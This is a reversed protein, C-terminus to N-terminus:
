HLNCRHRDCNILSLYTKAHDGHQWPQAMIRPLNIYMKYKQLIATCSIRKLYIFTLFQCIKMFIGQLTSPYLLRLNSTCYDAFNYNILFNITSLYIAKFTRNIFKNIANFFLNLIIILSNQFIKYFTNTYILLQDGIKNAISLIKIIIITNKCKL